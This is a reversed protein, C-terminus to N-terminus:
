YKLVVWSYTEGAFGTYSSSFNVVLKCSIKGNDTTVSEAFGLNKVATSGTNSTYAYSVVLGSYSNGIYKAQYVSCWMGKNDERATRERFMFGVTNYSRGDYFNSIDAVEYNTTTDEALTFSGCMYERGLITDAGGGAQIGEVASVFGDPFALEESTGGKARIADAVSTLDSDQVLYEAM